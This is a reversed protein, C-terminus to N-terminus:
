GWTQGGDVTLCTAVIHAARPSVLYAAAAAVDAPDAPQGAPIQAALAAEAAEDDVARSRAQYSVLAAYRATRTPGPHLGVVGIGRPAFLRGTSAVLGALAANIAASTVMGPPADRAANGAVIVIRGGGTGMLDAAARMARVSALFKTTFALQWADDDVEDFTGIPTSGVCAVLGRLDGEAEAARRLAAVGDVTTMDGAVAVVRAAGADAALRATEDLRGPDRSALVLRAGAAGLEVAVARGIGAGAGTVAVLRDRLALDM